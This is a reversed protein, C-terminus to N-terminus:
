PSPKPASQGKVSSPLLLWYRGESKMQGALYEARKGHGWFVDGRVPGRIAGGTDQAIMLKRIRPENKAPPDIDVWIPTGYPIRTHDVALSRQATLAVGEGGIPGAGDLQKFFVYSPNTFMIDWAQEPNQELWAKISQLSVDEKKLHGRKVLERGIAYYPHGNQGAYGIRMIDGNPLNVRGSGQIQMFFADVPNDTWVLAKEQAPPLKGEMIERHDEYPYLRGSKVRGAIRRGKLDERFAGLDVMVLDDPRERLPYQYPGSKQRMGNIAPEYYGTFLGKSGGGGVTALYPSFHQKFFRAAQESPTQSLERCIIQWDGYTGGLGTKSYPESPDQKEIRECSKSLAAFVQDHTDGHWGPLDHFSAPKLVLEAKEADIATCGALFGLILIVPFVSCIPKIRHM